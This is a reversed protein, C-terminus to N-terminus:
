DEEAAASAAEILDRRLRDLERQQQKVDRVLDKLKQWEDALMQAQRRLGAEYSRVSKWEQELLAWQEAYDDETPDYGYGTFSPSDYGRERSSSRFSGQSRSPVFSTQEWRQRTPLCKIGKLRSVYAKSLIDNAVLLHQMYDATPRLNKATKSPNAVYM